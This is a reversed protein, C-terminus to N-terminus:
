YSCNVSAFVMIDPYLIVSVLQGQSTFCFPIGGGHEAPHSLIFGYLTFGARKFQSSKVSIVSSLIFTPRIVRMSSIDFNHVQNNGTLTFNKCM